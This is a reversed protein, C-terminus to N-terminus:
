LISKQPATLIESFHGFCKPHGPPKSLVESLVPEKQFQISKSARNLVSLFNKRPRVRCTLGDWSFTNPLSYTQM